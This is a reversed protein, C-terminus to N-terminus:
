AIVPGQMYVDVDNSIVVNVNLLESLSSMKIINTRPIQLLPISASRSVHM